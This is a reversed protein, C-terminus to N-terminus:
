PSLWRKYKVEVTFVYTILYISDIEFTIQLTHTQTRERQVRKLPNYISM